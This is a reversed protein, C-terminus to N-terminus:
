EPKADEPGKVRATERGKPDKTIEWNKYRRTEEIVDKLDGAM